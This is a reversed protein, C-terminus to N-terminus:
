VTQEPYLERPDVEFESKVTVGKENEAWFRHSKMEVGLPVTLKVNYVRELYAFTDYTLARNVVATFLELEYEPVEGVVSDHITNVLFANMELIRLYHWTHILGIPIIEATAFSSVPYNFINTTHKIYGFKNMTCDPWYFILGWETRLKKEKLVTYTWSTQTDFIAKYRNQFYKAYEKQTETQGKSGYLPRFTEPKANQREDPTVDAESKRNFVSATARHVDKKSRIDGIAVPDRGLHAGIRFEMGMGDAEAVVWGPYRARFLRKFKRPFNQFQLKYKLGSSSLRHNQTVAQNYKARLWGGDEECCKQMKELYRLDASAESLEKHLEQFTRQDDTTAELSKITDGDTRRGGAKTRDESGDPKRREDFGLKEYLLVAVQKPSDWNVGGYRRHLRESATDYALRARKFEAEVREADLQMGHREIDALVPTLLSRTYLHPLLRLEVLERRQSLFVQETLETDKCGYKILWHLPILSPCVGGKILLSVLSEKHGLGYRAALADLDKPGRRNGLRVYEGLMTDYVVLRSIDVGCRQLWQLEFKSNQAIVFAASRLAESFRDSLTEGVDFQVGDYASNLPHGNGVKWTTLVIRNGEVLASGSDRNTTEFDFVIYNDSLYVEPNPNRVHEPLLDPNIQKPLPVKEVNVTSM